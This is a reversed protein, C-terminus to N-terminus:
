VRLGTARALADGHERGVLLDGRLRARGKDIRVLEHALDGTERDWTTVAVGQQWDPRSSVGPTDGTVSCLCGPTLATLVRAGEAGHVTRSALELRHVHGFAESTSAVGLVKSVSLGGRAGVTTGHHYRMAGDFLWLEGEPYPGVDKVGIKDFHMLRGLDLAANGDQVDALTELVPARERLLRILRGEHNGNLWWIQANPCALRFQALWWACEILASQTTDWLSPARPFKTSLEALDLNDGPFIVHDPQLKECVQLAVDLALPDHTPQLRHHMASWRHGIQPDGLFVAVETPGTSPTSPPVPALDMVEPVTLLASAIPELDVRVQWNVVVRPEGDSGKLTTPWRNVRARVIRWKTLDVGAIACLAEPTTAVASYDVDPDLGPDHDAVVHLGEDDQTVKPVRRGAPPAPQGMVERWLARHADRVRTATTDAGYKVLASAVVGQHANLGFAEAINPAMKGRGKIEGRRFALAIPRLWRVSEPHKTLDYELRQVPGQM